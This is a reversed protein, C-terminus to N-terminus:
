QAKMWHKYTEYTVFSISVVFHACLQSVPPEWLPTASSCLTRPHWVTDNPSCNTANQLVTTCKFHQSSSVWHCQLVDRFIQIKLRIQKYIYTHIHTHAHAHAHAHIYTHYVIHCSPAKCSELSFDWLYLVNVTCRVLHLTNITRLTDIDPTLPICHIM